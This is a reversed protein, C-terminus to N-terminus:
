AILISGGKEEIRSVMESSAGEDTIILDLEDVGLVGFPAVTGVKSSDALVVAQRTNARVARRAQIETPYFDTLGAEPHIGGSALFAIDPHFNTLFATADSGHVAADGARVQGGAIVVTAAPIDAAEIAVLLSNTCITGEFERPLAHALALSTTGVDIFVTQNTGILAAARRAISTKNESRFLSREGFTGEDTQTVGFDADSLVAGGHVRRVAGSEELMRFDRRITEVSVGVCESAWETSLVSTDKLIELLMKQREFPFQKGSVNSTHGNM